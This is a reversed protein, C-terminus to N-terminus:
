RESQSVGDYGAFGVYSQGRSDAAASCAINAGPAPLTSPCLVGNLQTGSSQRLYSPADSADTIKYDDEAYWTAGDTWTRAPMNIDSFKAPGYMADGIATITEYLTASGGHVSMMFMFKGEADTGIIPLYSFQKAPSPFTMGLKSSTAGFGYDGNLSTQCIAALGTDDVAMVTTDKISIGTKFPTTQIKELSEAVMKNRNAGQWNKGMAPKLLSLTQGAVTGLPSPQGLLYVRYDDAYVPISGRWTPQYQMVANKNLRVGLNKADEILLDLGKGSYLAGGGQLRLLSLTLSLRDRYLTDGAILRQGEMIKGGSATAMTATVKIGRRAQQESEIILKNWAMEGYRSHLVGLSRPMTPMLSDKPAFDLVETLGIKSNHIMCAGQSGLGALHPRTVAQMFAMAIVADVANGGKLLIDEGTGAIDRTAGIAVGMFPRNADVGQAGKARRSVELPKNPNRATIQVTQETILNDDSSYKEIKTTACGALTAPVLGWVMFRKFVKNFASMSFNSNQYDTM